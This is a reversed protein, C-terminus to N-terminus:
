KDAFMARVSRLEGIAEAGISELDSESLGHRTLINPRARYALGDDGTGVGLLLCVSDALYVVDILADSRPAAQPDHHYRICNVITDPLSWAAALRAGVEPHTFGLVQQEAEAFSLHEDQVRRVIEAYEQAVFENLVVKGVDHLLGATFLTGGQPMRLRRALLQAAVAVAVSHAWLAGAPLGYGEQPRSLLLRAHAAMVLQFVRVTGLLCVADDLSEVRRALGFYASNALKLVEATLAQDYRIAEVVQALNARPDSVVNILHLVTSPLHPLTGVREVLQDLLVVSM